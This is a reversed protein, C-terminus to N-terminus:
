DKLNALWRCAASTLGEWGQRKQNGLRNAWRARIGAEDTGRHVGKEKEKEKKSMFNM